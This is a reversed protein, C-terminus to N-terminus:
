DGQLKGNDTEGEGPETQLAIDCLTIMRNYLIAARPDEMSRSTAALDRLQCRVVKLLAYANWDEYRPFAIMSFWPTCGDADIFMEYSPKPRYLLRLVQAMLRRGRKPTVNQV